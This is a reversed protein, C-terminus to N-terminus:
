LEETLEKLKKYPAFASLWITKNLGQKKILDNFLDVFYYGERFFRRKAELRAFFAVM